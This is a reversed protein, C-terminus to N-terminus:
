ASHFYGRARADIDKENQEQKAGQKYGTRKELLREYRAQLDPTMVAPNPTIGKRVCAELMRQERQWKAQGNRRILDQMADQYKQGNLILWGGEVKEIRRGDYEQKELRITDPACLIGLADLVEKETKNALRGIEYASLRVIHDSGKVALMTMFIKVVGDPLAWLSSYVIGSWLPTWWKKM